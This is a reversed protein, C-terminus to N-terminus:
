FFLILDEWLLNQIKIELYSGLYLELEFKKLWDCM